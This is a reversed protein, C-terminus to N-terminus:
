LTVWTGEDNECLVGGSLPPGVAILLGPVHVSAYLTKADDRQGTVPNSEAGKARAQSYCVGERVTGPSLLRRPTHHAALSKAFSVMPLHFALAICFPPDFPSTNWRGSELAISIRQAGARQTFPCEHTSLANLPETIVTSLKSPVKRRHCVM